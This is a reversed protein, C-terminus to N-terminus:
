NILRWAVFAYLALQTIAGGNKVEASSSLSLNAERKQRRVGLLVLPQTLGLAPTFATSFLFIIQCQRHNFV